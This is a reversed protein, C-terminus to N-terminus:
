GNWPGLEVPVGGLHVIFAALTGMDRAQPGGRAGFFSTTRFLKSSYITLLQRFYVPANALTLDMCPVSHLDRMDCPHHHACASELAHEMGVARGGRQGRHRLPSVRTLLIRTFTGCPTCCYWAISAAITRCLM